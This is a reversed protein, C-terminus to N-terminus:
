VYAAEREVRARLQASMGERLEILDVPRGLRAMLEDRMLALDFLTLKVEPDVRYVVDVDSDERAERRAVSGFCGLSQLGYAEGRDRLFDSLKALVDTRDPILMDNNM